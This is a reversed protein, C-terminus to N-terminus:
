IAVTAAGSELLAAAEEGAYYISGRFLKVPKLSKKVASLFRKAWKRFEESKLMWEGDPGYLGDVYYVRGARFTMDRLSAGRVEVIPNPTTDVVWYNQVPVYEMVVSNLDEPRAVYFDFVQKGDQELYLSNVLHPTASKSRFRFIVFDLRERLRAELALTDSQTLLYSSQHGM